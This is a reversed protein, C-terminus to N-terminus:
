TRQKKDMMMSMRRQAYEEKNKEATNFNNYKYQLMEQPRLHVGNKKCWAKIGFGFPNNGPTAFTVGLSDPGLFNLDKVGCNKLPNAVNNACNNNRIDYKMEGRLVNTNEIAKEIEEPTKGLRSPYVAYYQAKLGYTEWIPATDMFDSRRNVVKDKYQMCVHGILSPGEIPVIGIIIPEEAFLDLKGDKDKPIRDTVDKGGRFVSGYKQMEEEVPCDLEVYCRTKYGNDGRFLITKDGKERAIAIAEDKPADYFNLNTHYPNLKSERLRKILKADRVKAWVKKASIFKKIDQDYVTVHPYVPNSKAM